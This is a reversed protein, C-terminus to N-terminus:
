WERHEGYERIAYHGAFIGAHAVKVLWLLFVCVQGVNWLCLGESMVVREAPLVDVDAAPKPCRRM